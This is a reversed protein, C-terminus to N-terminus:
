LIRFENRPLRRRRSAHFRESCEALSVVGSPPEGSGGGPGRRGAPSRREDL